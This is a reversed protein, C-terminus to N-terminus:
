LIKSSKILQEAQDAPLPPALYYGQGFDCNLERLRTLQESTEIGEAILKINLTKALAVIISIIPHEKDDQHINSVFSRDIKIADFPLQHIYSLSSYGTGFDDLSIRIGLSKIQHFLKRAKAINEMLIHETVEIVISNDPLQYKDMVYELETILKSDVFRQSSINISIYIPESNIKKWEIIQKAIHSFLQKDIDRILDNKEAIHIFQNPSIIGKKPHNWRLLAEFGLIKKTDLDVIPQYHFFLQQKDIATRLELLLNKAKVISQHLSTEYVQINNKGHNKVHYMAHDANKLLDEFTETKEDKLCVGISVSVLISGRETNIPKKMVELIRHSIIMTMSDNELDELLIAYEDGGIRALTDSSRLEALMREASIKLVEDGAQHGYSDNISKFDDFDIFLVAVGTAQQRNSKSFAHELRNLFLSRSALGTASDHLAQYQLKQEKIKRDISTSIHQGLFILFEQDSENFSIKKNTSQLTIVGQLEKNIQFPVALWSFITRSIDLIKGARLKEQLQEHNLLQPLQSSLVEAILTEKIKLQDIAISFEGGSKEDHMYPCSYQQDISNYLIISFCDTKVQDAIINQLGSYFREITKSQYNLESIQLFTDSLKKTKQLSSYSNKLKLINSNFTIKSALIHGLIEFYQRHIETYFNAQSHESDIVGLLKKRFYIPVAIESLREQDDIIYDTELRTDEVIITECKAAARGVVGQGIKLKIPNAIERQEPNKPGYAAVQILFKKTDDLLYIICDELDFSQITHHVIHWAVENISDIHNVHGAFDLMAALTANQQSAIDNAPRKNSM